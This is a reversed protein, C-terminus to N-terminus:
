LFVTNVQQAADVLVPWELKPILKSILEPNFDTESVKVSSAQFAINSVILEVLQSGHEASM